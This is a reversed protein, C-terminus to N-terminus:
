KHCVSDPSLSRELFVNKGIKVIKPQFLIWANTNTDMEGLNIKKYVDFSNHNNDLSVQLTVFITM